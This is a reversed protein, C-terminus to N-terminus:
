EAYHLFDVVNRLTTTHARNLHPFAAEPIPHDLFTCLDPWSQGAGLDMLLLDRGIRAGFYALVARRHELFRTRMMEEDSLDSTGYLDHTLRALKPHLGLLPMWRRLRRMSGMWSECDRMTLIFKAGPFAADLERYMLAVPTDTIADYRAACATNLTLAGDAFALLSLPHHVTRYGLLRLAETLSTTGTRSFGIGFIKHTSINHTAPRM